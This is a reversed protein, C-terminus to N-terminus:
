FQRFNVDSIHKLTPTAFHSSLAVQVSEVSHAELQMERVLIFIPVSM